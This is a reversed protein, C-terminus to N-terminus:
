FQRIRISGPDVGRKKYQEIGFLRVQDWSALQAGGGDILNIARDTCSYCPDIAAIIIPVDALQFGELMYSMGHWNAESPARVRVRDPM